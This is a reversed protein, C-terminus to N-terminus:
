VYEWPSPDPYRRALWDQFVRNSGVVDATSFAPWDDPPEKWSTLKVDQRETAHHFFSNFYATRFATNEKKIMGCVWRAITKDLVVPLHLEYDMPAKDGLHEQANRMAIGFVDNPLPRPQRFHVRDEFPRLLYFDDNMYIFRRSIDTREVVYRLKRYTSRNAAGGAEGHPIHVVNDNMWWFRHGVIFVRDVQAYQALSRLSYRLEHEWRAGPGSPYMADM